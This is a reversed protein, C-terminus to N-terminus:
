YDWRYRECLERMQTALALADKAESAATERDVYSGVLEWAVYNDSAYCLAVDSGGEHEGTEANYTVAAVDEWAVADWGMAPRYDPAIEGTALRLLEACGFAIDAWTGYPDVGDTVLSMVDRVTEPLAAFLRDFQATAKADTGYEVERATMTRM